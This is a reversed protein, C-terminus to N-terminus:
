QVYRDAVEQVDEWVANISQNGDVTEVETDGEEDFYTLVEELGERQWNVREKIKEETDDARQILQTDCNDCREDNEPPDYVLHYNADCEPCIRRKTLRELINSEAVEILMVANIDTVNDMVEAQEQYRPFGDLVFGDACDPQELRKSLLTAATKATVPNGEDIIEGVTEGSETEFDKNNRLIDGMSIHPIGYKDSLKRAQTGKGAGPLGLVALKLSM